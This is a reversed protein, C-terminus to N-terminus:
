GVGAKPPSPGHQRRAGRWSNRRLSELRARTEELERELRAPRAEERDIADPLSEDSPPMAMTLCRRGTTGDFKAPRGPRDGILSPLDASQGVRHNEGLPWPPSPCDIQFVQAAGTICVHLFLFSPSGPCRRRM